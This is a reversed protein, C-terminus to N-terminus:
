AHFRTLLAEELITIGLGTKGSGTMGVIGGHTTLDAGDYIVPKGNEGTEHGIFFSGNETEM